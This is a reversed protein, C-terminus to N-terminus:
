CQPPLGQQYLLTKFAPEDRLCDFVPWLHLWMMLPDLEDCSQSLFDIAEARKGLALNALAFQLPSLRGGHRRLKMTEMEALMNRAKDMYLSKGHALNLIHLGPFCPGFDGYAGKTSVVRYKDVPDQLLLSLNLVSHPFQYLGNLKYAKYYAESAEAYRRAVYLLFGFQTWSQATSFAFKTKLEAFRLAENLQGTAALFAIYWPYTETDSRSIENAIRFAETAKGWQGEYSLIAGDVAHTRWANPSLETAVSLFKRADAVRLRGTSGGVTQIHGPKEDPFWLLPTNEGDWPVLPVILNAEALALYPASFSKDTTISEFFSFAAEQPLMRSLLDLGRAYLIHSDTARFRFRVKYGRGPILQIEISDQAGDNAYYTKLTDRLNFATTRGVSTSADRHGKPFLVSDLDRRTIEKGKIACDVVYELIKAQSPSNAFLDSHLIRALQMRIEPEGPADM